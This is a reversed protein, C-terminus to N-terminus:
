YFYHLGGIVATERDLAHVTELRQFVPITPEFGVRPM